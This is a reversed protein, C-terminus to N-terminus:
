CTIRRHSTYHNQWRSYVHWIDSDLIGDSRQNQNKPGTWHLIQLHHKRHKICQYATRLADYTHVLWKHKGTLFAFCKACHAFITSLLHSSFDQPGSYGRYKNQAVTSRYEDTTPQGKGDKHSYQLQNSWVTRVLMNCSRRVSNTAVTSNPREYLFRCVAWLLLLIHLNSQNRVNNLRTWIACWM